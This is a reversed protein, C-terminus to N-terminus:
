LLNETPHLMLPTVVTRWLGGVRAIKVCFFLIWFIKQFPTSAGFGFMVLTDVRYAGAAM